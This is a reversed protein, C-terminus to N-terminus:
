FGLHGSLPGICLIKSAAVGGQGQHLSPLESCVPTRHPRVPNHPEPSPASSVAMLTGTSLGEGVGGGSAMKGPDFAGKWVADVQPYQM